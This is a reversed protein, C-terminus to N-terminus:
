FRRAEDDREPHEGVLVAESGIIQHEVIRLRDPERVEFLRLLQLPEPPRLAPLARAVATIQLDKRVIADRDDRLLAPARDRVTATRFAPYRDRHPFRPDSSTTRAATASRRM